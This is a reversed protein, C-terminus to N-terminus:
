NNEYKKQFNTFNSIDEEKVKGITSIFSDRTWISPIRSTLEPFKEKLISASNNKLKIISSQIGFYPNCDIEMTVQNDSVEIEKIEFDYDKSIALLTEKVFNRKEDTDLVKRKYKTHFSVIYQCSYFSYNDKKYVKKNNKIKM